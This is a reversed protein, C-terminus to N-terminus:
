QWALSQTVNDAKYKNTEEGEERRYVVSVTSPARAISQKVMPSGNRDAFCGPLCVGKVCAKTVWIKRGGAQM